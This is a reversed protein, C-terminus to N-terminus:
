PKTENSIDVLHATKTHFSPNKTDVDFDVRFKRGADIDLFIKPPHNIGKHDFYM